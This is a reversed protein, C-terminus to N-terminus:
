KINYYEKISKDYGMDMKEQKHEKLEEIMEDSPNIGNFVKPGTLKAKAIRREIFMDIEEDTPKTNLLQQIKKPNKLFREQERRFRRNSM